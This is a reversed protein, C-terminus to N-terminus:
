NTKWTRGYRRITEGERYARLAENIKGKSAKEFGISKLYREADSQSEYEKELINDIYSSCKMRKSKTGDYKGNNHADVGNDSKTGIRLKHPRFDMKNDDEHLIMEDPKKNAYEEPFFTMFSIIHCLRNKNNIAIRPYGDSKLGLREGSLVNEAYKTIYKVRNLDSIEWFGKTTESDIIKKWVEGPLNPYEKYSFGHQRKQAYKKIMITTYERGFSNKEDKLHAVWEKITKEDEDKVVIYASKLTEQM